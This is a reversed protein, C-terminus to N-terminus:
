KEAKILLLLFKCDQLQQLLAAGTLLAQKWKQHPIITICGSSAGWPGVAGETNRNSGKLIEKWYFEETEKTKSNM